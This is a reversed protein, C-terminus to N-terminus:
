AAQAAAAEEAKKARADRRKEIKDLHEEIAQRVMKSMDTNQRVAEIKLRRKLQPTLKVMLPQEFQLERRPM